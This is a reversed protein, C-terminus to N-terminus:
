FYFDDIIMDVSLNKAIEKEIYLIIYNTLFDGELRNRLTTKIIEMVCFARETTTTSVPLTLVLHLLRDVLPYSVSKGIM